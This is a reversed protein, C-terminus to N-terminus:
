DIQSIMRSTQQSQLQSFDPLEDFGKEEESLNFNEEVEPL